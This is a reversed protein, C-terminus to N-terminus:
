TLKVIDLYSTQIEREYLLTVPYERVINDTGDTSNNDVVIIEYHDSPYDLGLLSEICAVITRSGNYVPIVVSVFPPCQSQSTTKNEFQPLEDM